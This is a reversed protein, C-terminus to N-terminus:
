CPGNDTWVGQSNNGPTDGQTWWKATWKHGNFSVQMGGTYATSSNWPPATCSGPRPTPSGTPPPSQPPTAGAFRATFKTFEWPTQPVSSCTGSVRQGNDPPNCQRDRNVSWFTFRSLGHGTAYNFVTTFESQPFMEGADSRGNMLSVGEHNYATTSNWGFTNMLLGHFAELANVQSQGGNFGNDFPMISFNNPTFGLTKANTLVNQGFFGTGSPTGATTISV